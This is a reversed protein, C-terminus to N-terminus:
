KIDVILSAPAATIGSLVAGTVGKPSFSAVSFANAAAPFSAGTELDFRVTVFEGMGFGTVNALGINLKAPTGATAPIFKALVLKTAGVDAVGSITIVGSAAEGTIADAKVKVGAPLNVTMDIGTITDAGGSTSLKLIGSTPAAIPTITGGTKNKDSSSFETIADNLKTFTDISLNGGHEMETGMDDMVGKLADDLSGGSSKQRNNALQSFSGCAAAYKKQDDRSGAAIPLTSIIDTLKFSAAVSKNSDDISATTLAGKGKAKKFALETLPTVAMTKTGTSANSFVARLPTKLAVVAGSVEDTYSGGTVEVLVPGKYSGIDITYNGNGDTTAEKLPAIDQVGDHIAFLKVTGEKIPGKSAMGTIKSTTGSLPNLEGSSGCGTLAAVALSVCLGVIVRIRM